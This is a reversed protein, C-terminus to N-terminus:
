KSSLGVGASRAVKAPALVALVQKTNLPRELTRSEGCSFSPQTSTPPGALSSIMSRRDIMASVNRLTDLGACSARGARNRARGCIWDSSRARMVFFM